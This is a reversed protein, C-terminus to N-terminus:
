NKVGCGCGAPSCGCGGGAYSPPSPTVEGESKIGFPSFQKELNNSRCAACEVAEESNLVLIEFLEECDLCRYEFIPV